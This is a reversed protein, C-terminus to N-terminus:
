FLRRGRVEKGWPWQACAPCEPVPPLILVWSPALAKAELEPLARPKHTSLFLNVLGPYPTPPSVLGWEPGPSREQSCLGRILGVSSRFPCLGRPERHRM